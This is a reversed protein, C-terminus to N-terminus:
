SEVPLIEQIPELSGGSDRVFGSNPDFAVEMLGIVALDHLGARVASTLGYNVDSIIALGAAVRQHCCTAGSGPSVAPM